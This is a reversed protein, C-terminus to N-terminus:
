VKNKLIYLTLSVNPDDLISVAGEDARDFLNKM